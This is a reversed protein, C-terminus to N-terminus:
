REIWLWEVLKYLGLWLLIYLISLSLILKLTMVAIEM